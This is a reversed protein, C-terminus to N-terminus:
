IIILKKGMLMKVIQQIQKQHPTCGGNNTDEEANLNNLELDTLRREEYMYYLRDIMEQKQNQLQSWYIAAENLTWGDIWGEEM